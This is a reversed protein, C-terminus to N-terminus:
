SADGNSGGANRLGERQPAVVGRSGGDCYYASVEAHHRLNEPRYPAVLDYQLVGDPAAFRVLVSAHLPADDRLGRPKRRAFRFVLSRTEDHQMGLADPYLRLVSRDYRLGVKGAAGLMWDLAVDSLRSEDEPYSGGVDSHNGAFWMQEFWVPDGGKWQGSGGWPVRAFSARAEDISLAHRAYRVKEDLETDYMKMRATTLHITRWWRVGPLGTAVKLRTVLNVTGAVIALTGALGAFWQLYSGPLWISALGLVALAALATLSLLVVAAPNALSAVTDFVGIFWPRANGGDDEDADYALRFRRALLTRHELLEQQRPARAAPPRSNTYNYVGVADRAIRRISGPDRRLPGGGKGTTPLGCLKLVGGLCRVTYAGRSFGFLFIRDGPRWLRVLAAYCDVVNRTIGLGTAQSAVNYVTRAFAAPSDVGGPLTGLGPDYFAVQESPDVCSDPASRAARYLKYINSRREDVLVGGRQGTGDALIVINRGM